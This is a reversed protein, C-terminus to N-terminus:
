RLVSGLTDVAFCDDGNEYVVLTQRRRVVRSYRVDADAFVNGSVLRRVREEEWTSTGCSRYRLGLVARARLHCHIEVVLPGWRASEYSGLPGVIADRNSRCSTLSTEEVGFLGNVGISGSSGRKSSGVSTSHQYDLFGTVVVSM